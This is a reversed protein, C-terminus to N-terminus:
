GFFSKIKGLLDGLQESLNKLTDWGASGAGSVAKQVSDAADLIRQLEGRVQRISESLERFFAIVPPLWVALLVIVTVAAALLVCLLVIKVVDNRRKEAVLEELMERDTMQAVPKKM